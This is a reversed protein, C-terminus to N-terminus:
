KMMHHHINNDNPALHRCVCVFHSERVYVCFISSIQNNINGIRTRLPSLPWVRATAVVVIVVVVFVVVVPTEVLNKTNRFLRGPRDDDGYSDVFFFYFCRRSQESKKIYVRARVSCTAAANNTFRSVVIYIYDWSYHSAASLLLAALFCFLFVLRGLISISDRCFAIFSRHHGLLCRRAAPCCDASCQTSPAYEVSNIFMMSARRHPWSARMTQHTSVERWREWVSERKREQGILMRAYAYTRHSRTHM